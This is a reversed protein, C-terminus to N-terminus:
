AGVASLPKCHTETDNSEIEAILEILVEREDDTYSIGWCEEMKYTQLEAYYRLLSSM